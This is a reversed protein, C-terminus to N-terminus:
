GRPADAHAPDGAQPSGEFTTGSDDQALKQVARPRVVGEAPPGDGSGPASCPRAISHNIPGGRNQAGGGGGSAAEDM